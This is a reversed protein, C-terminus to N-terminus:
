NNVHCDIQYQNGSMGPTRSIMYLIRQVCGAPSDGIIGTYEQPATATGCYVLSVYCTCRGESYPPVPVGGAKVPDGDERPYPCYAGSQASARAKEPTDVCGYEGGACVCVDGEANTAYRPAPADYDPSGPGPDPNPWPAPDPGQVPLEQTGEPHCPPYDSQTCGLATTLISCLLIMYAKM